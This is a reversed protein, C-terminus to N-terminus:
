WGGIRWSRWGGTFELVVTGDLGNDVEEFIDHGGCLFGFRCCEEVIHLFTDGESGCEGFHSMWLRGCWDLRIIHAGCSNCVAGKSLASGFCHVHPEVPYLVSDFLSLEYYIPTGARIIQCIVEGFM